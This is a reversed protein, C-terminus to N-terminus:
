LYIFLCAITGLILVIALSVITVKREYLMWGFLVIGAFSSVVSGVLEYPSENNLYLGFVVVALLIALVPLYRLPTRESKLSEISFDQIDDDVIEKDM